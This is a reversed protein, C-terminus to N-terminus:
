LSSWRCVGCVGDRWGEMGGLGGGGGARMGGERVARIAENKMFEHRKGLSLM